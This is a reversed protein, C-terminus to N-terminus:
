VNKDENTIAVEEILELIQGNAANNLLQATKTIQEVNPAYEGCIDVGLIKHNKVICEYIEGLEKLTLIGQDWNTCVEEGDIVDKDVSVYVNYHIYKKAFTEWNPHGKLMTEGYAVVKSQYAKPIEKILQDAVGIIIVEKLFPNDDLARKVWCGCSMLNEFLSPQMDTHHDFLVLTFPEKIRAMLLYTIYHYNGSDIYNIRTGEHHMLREKIARLGEEDCYGNVGKLDTFNLWEYIENKYFDQYTYANVFNFLTIKEHMKM